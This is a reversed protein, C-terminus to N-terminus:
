SANHEMLKVPDFAQRIAQLQDPTWEHGTVKSLRHRMEHEVEEKSVGEAIMEPILRDLALLGEALLRPGIGHAVAIMTPKLFAEAFSIGALTLAILVVGEGIHTLSENTIM